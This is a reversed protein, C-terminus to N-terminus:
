QHTINSHTITLNYMIKKKNNQEILRVIFPKIKYQLYYKKMTIINM